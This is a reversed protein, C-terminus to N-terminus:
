GTRGIPFPAWLKCGATKVMVAKLMVLLLFFSGLLYLFVVRGRNRMSVLQLSPLYDSVEPAPVANGGCSQIIRTTHLAPCMWPKQRVFVTDEKGSIFLEGTDTVEQWPVQM